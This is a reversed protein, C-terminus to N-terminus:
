NPEIRQNLLGRCARIFVSPDRVHPAVKLLSENDLKWWGIEELASITAVDFRYRILKAPNGAVVGYPPVDKTVVAGAGVVAGNGIQVGSLVVASHGIWVDHGICTGVAPDLLHESFKKKVSDRGKYFVPSMGVWEMPHRAGGIVVRNAISTFSGINAHYIECDYGCFSYRGLSSYYFSSGSEIKSSPHVTSERVSSLRIKKLAKAIITKLM